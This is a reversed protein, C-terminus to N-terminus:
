NEAPREVHDIVLYERPGRTQELKLGLQEIATFISPAPAIDTGEVPADFHRDTNEDRLFELHINFRGEIGTKDLVHRDLNSSIIGAFAAMTSGGFDWIINPGQSGGSVGCFPKEGSRIRALEQEYTSSIEPTRQRCGDQGIPRIKLGGKAATLAYMPIQETERRVNLQFRDQLINRLMPGMMIKKDPTGEAKAEIRYKDSRVWAPGGKATRGDPESPSRGSANLLRNGMQVYALFTM